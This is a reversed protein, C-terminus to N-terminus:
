IAGGHRSKGVDHFIEQFFGFSHNQMQFSDPGTTSFVRFIDLLRRDPHSDANVIEIFVHRVTAKM